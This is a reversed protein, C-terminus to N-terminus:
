EDDDEEKEPYLISRYISKTLRVTLSCGTVAVSIGTWLLLVTLSFAVLMGGATLLIDPMYTLAGGFVYTALYVGVACFVAGLAFVVVGLAISLGFLVAWMAIMPITVVVAAFKRGGSAKRPKEPEKGARPKEPEKQTRPKRRPKEPEEEEDDEDETEPENEEPEETEGPEEPMHPEEAPIIDEEEYEVAAEGSPEADAPEGTEQAEEAEPEESETEPEEPVEDPIEPEAAEEPADEPM